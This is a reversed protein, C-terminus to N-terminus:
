RYILWLILVISLCAFIAAMYALAKKREKDRTCIDCDCFNRAKGQLIIM